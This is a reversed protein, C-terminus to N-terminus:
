KLYKQSLASRIIDLYMIEVSYAELVSDIFLRYNDISIRTDRGFFYKNHNGFEYIMQSEALRPLWELRFIITAKFSRRPFMQSLIFKSVCQVSSSFSGSKETMNTKNCSSREQKLM